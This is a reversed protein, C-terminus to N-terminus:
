LIRSAPVGRAFRLDFSVADFPPQTHCFQRLSPTPLAIGARASVSHLRCASAREPGTAAARFRPTRRRGRGASARGCPRPGAIARGRRPGTARSNPAREAPITPFAPPRTSPRASRPRRPLRGPRQVSPGSRSRPRVPPNGSRRSRLPRERTEREVEVGAPEQQRLLQPVPVVERVRDGLREDRDGRVVSIGVGGRQLGDEDRELAPVLM